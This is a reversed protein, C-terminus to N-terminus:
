GARRRDFEDLFNPTFLGSSREAEIEAASWFRGEDIEERNLRMKGSWVVTFTAVYESEYSNRHLYKHQFRLEAGTIGLEEAMERRAAAHYTEGRDVHGGVSTDWKGPEVEKASSRKQLFIGGDDNLVMVHAVRHILAPNGHVESRRASGTVEDRENVLDLLEEGSRDNM